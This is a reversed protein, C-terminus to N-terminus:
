FSKQPEVNQENCLLLYDEVADMFNAELDTANNAEFTVRNLNIARLPKSNQTLFYERM